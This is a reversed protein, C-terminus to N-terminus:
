ALREDDPPDEPNRFDIKEVGSDLPEENERGREDADSDAGQAAAAELEEDTIQEALITKAEDVKEPPVMVYVKAMDGVNLNFSHDRQTFVAAPVGASDLRDRVFDAEYDTGSRFVSVWGELEKQKESM